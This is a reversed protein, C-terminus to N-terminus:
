SGPRAASRRRAWMFGILALIILGNVALLVISWSSRGRSSQIEALGQGSDASVGLSRKAMNRFEDPYDGESLRTLVARSKEEDGGKSYLRALRLLHSAANPDLPDDKATLRELAGIAMPLNGSDEEVHALNSLFRSTEGFPGSHQRIWRMTKLGVAKQGRIDAYAALTELYEFARTCPRSKAAELGLNIGEDVKGSTILERAARFTLEAYEADSVDPRERISSARAAMADGHGSSTLFDLLHSRAIPDLATPADDPSASAGAKEFFEVSRTTDGFKAYLQAISLWVRKKMVPDHFRDANDLLIKIGEEERRDEPIAMVQARIRAMLATDDEVPSAQALAIVTSALLAWGLSRALSVSM